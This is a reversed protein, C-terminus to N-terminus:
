WRAEKKETVVISASLVVPIEGMRALQYKSVTSRVFGSGGCKGCHNSQSDSHGACTACPLQINLMIM